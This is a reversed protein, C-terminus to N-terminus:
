LMTRSSKGAHHLFYDLSAMPGPAKEKPTQQIVSSVEPETFPLDLHHLEQPQWDLQDLKLNISNNSPAGIHNNFHDYIIQHKQSQSVAMGNNTHLSHIFKKRKRMNAIIQFYKTNADGRRLWTLRSKQRASSKEIAALGLIRAKMQKIFQVEQASLQRFEQATELQKIVERCIAMALKGQPVLTKPWLRLAKATRSLKIHLTTMPNHSTPVDRSWAEQVCGHFGQMETCYSEFRFKPKPRPAIFPLILLPCHDSTSSSLSHLVPNPLHNEWAPTCFARDIRTLTPNNQLNSWTFKRGLLPVEMVELHNLTRPFRSMLRRNLNGNSKDQEKYILNFDGIILWRPLALAKLQKLERLFMKKELEGQPGYVGTLTWTTDRKADQVTVSITNNTLHPNDKSSAKSSSNFPNTYRSFPRPVRPDVQILSSPKFVLISRTDRSM